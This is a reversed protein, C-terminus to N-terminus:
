ATQTQKRQILKRIGSGIEIFSQIYIIADSGMEVAYKMFGERLRHRYIRTGRANSLLTETFIGRDNSPLPETFVKGSCHICV